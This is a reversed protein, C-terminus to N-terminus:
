CFKKALLSCEATARKLYEKGYTVGFRGDKTFSFKFERGKLEMSVFGGGAGFVGSKIQRFPPLVRLALGKNNTNVSFWDWYTVQVTKGSFRDLVGEPRVTLEVALPNAVRCLIDLVFYRPGHKGKTREELNALVEVGDVFGKIDYRGDAKGLGTEAPEFGLEGAIKVLEVSQQFAFGYYIGFVSVAALAFLKNLYPKVDDIGGFYYVLIAISSSVLAFFAIWGIAAKLINSFEAAFSKKDLGILGGFAMFLFGAATIGAAAITWNNWGSPAARLLFLGLLAIVPGLIQIM